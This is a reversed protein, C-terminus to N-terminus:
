KPEYLTYFAIKETEMQSYEKPSVGSDFLLAGLAEQHDPFM